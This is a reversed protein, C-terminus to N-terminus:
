TQPPVAFFPLHLVDAGEVAVIAAIVVGEGVPHYGCFPFFCKKCSRTSTKVLMVGLKGLLKQPRLLGRRRYKQPWFPSDQAAKECGPVYCLLDLQEHLMQTNQELVERERCSWLKTRHLQLPFPCVESKM